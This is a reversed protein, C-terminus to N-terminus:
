KYTVGSTTTVASIWTQGRNLPLPNGADDTFSLAGANSAKNWHGITLVGDQFIYAVGSGITNYDSYYSGSSTTATQAMPVVMAIVVKPSIQTDGNADKHPQGAESRNYSNTAAVYDYHPNYTYGSLSFDIGTASPAKSAAETKRTFGTFTSTYGKKSELENLTGIGTYVNHPAPRSSIRHFYAGNSFQNMDKVGWDAINQLALPSGGVHAYAADFGM